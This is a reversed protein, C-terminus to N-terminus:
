LHASRISIEEPEISKMNRSRRLFLGADAARGGMSSTSGHRRRAEDVMKRSNVRDLGFCTWFRQVLEGRCPLEGGWVARSKKFSTYLVDLFSISGSEIIGNQILGHYLFMVIRLQAHHDVMLCGAEMNGFYTLYSFSTGAFLPNWIGGSRRYVLIRLFCSLM